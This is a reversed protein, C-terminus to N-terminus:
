FHFAPVGFLVRHLAALAPYAAVGIAVAIADASWKAAPPKADAPARPRLIDVLAFVAFGGFMILSAADGNAAIHALAWLLFGLSMPHRAARKIHSRLNAAAILVFAPAMAVAAAGHGWAPPQWLAVHPARAKGVIIAALGALAIFSFAIKYAREGLRGVVRARLAPRMPILHVGFFVAWGLILLSM